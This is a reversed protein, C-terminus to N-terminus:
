GLGFVDKLQAEFAAVVGELGARLGPAAAEAADTVATGIGSRLDELLPTVQQLKSEVENKVTQLEAAARIDLRHILEEIPALLSM